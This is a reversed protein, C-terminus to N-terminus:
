GSRDLAYMRVYEVDLEDRWVGLVYDTGIETIRLAPPTDLDGLWEGEPSLITWTRSEEWSPTFQEVWLHGTSDILLNDFTPFADPFPVERLWGQWFRKQNPDEYSALLEERYKAIEQDGVSRPESGWRIVRDLSGDPDWVEIEAEGGLGLLAHGPDWAHVPWGVSFPIAGATTRGGSTHAWQPGMPFKAIVNRFGGDPGYRSFIIESGELLGSAGAGFGGTGSTVFLGGDHTSGVASPYGLGPEMTVPIVRVFAGQPDIVSVRNLRGDFVLLSDARGRWMRMSLFEGPGEGAGGVAELFIGDGGFYRIEWTRWNSAALRGDSLLFVQGIRDFVYEEPGELLGIELGPDLALAWGSGPEWAPRASQLIQVGASDRVTFGSDHPSTDQCGGSIPLLLLGFRWLYRIM